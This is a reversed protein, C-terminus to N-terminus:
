AFGMKKKKKKKKEGKKKMKKKRKKKARHLVSYITSQPLNSTSGFLV